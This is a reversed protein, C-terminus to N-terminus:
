RTVVPTPRTRPALEAAVRRAKAATVVLTALVGLASGLSNALLDRPDSVRDPLAQQLFEIAFTLGIGSLIALWWRHRGLLLVLLLGLPMFMAINLLFEVMLFDLWRTAEFRDFLRVLAHVLSSRGDSPVPGLTVVGILALYGFTAVTLLPHRRFMWRNESM